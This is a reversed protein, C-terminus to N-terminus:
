SRSYALVSSVLRAESERVESEGGELSEMAGLETTVIAFNSGFSRLVAMTRDYGSRHQCQCCYPIWRIAPMATLLPLSHSNAIGYYRLAKIAALTDQSHQWVKM